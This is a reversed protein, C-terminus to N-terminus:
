VFSTTFHHIYYSSLLGKSFDDDQSKGSRPVEVDSDDVCIFHYIYTTSLLGKSFDDDQSEGSRPM